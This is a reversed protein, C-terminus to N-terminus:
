QLAQCLPSAQCITTLHTIFVHAEEEAFLKLIHQKFVYTFKFKVINM